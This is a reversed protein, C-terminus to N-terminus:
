LVYVISNLVKADLGAGFQVNVEQSIIEVIIAAFYAYIYYNLTFNVPEYSM